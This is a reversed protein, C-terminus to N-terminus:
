GSDFAVQSIWSTHGEGFAIVSGQEICFVAVLDDEGGTAVYKGDPSWACCLLGGYYSQLLDCLDCGDGRSLTGYKSDRKYNVHRPM